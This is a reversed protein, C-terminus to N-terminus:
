RAAARPGAEDDSSSDDDADYSALDSLDSEEDDSMSSRGSLTAGSSGGGSSTSASSQESDCRVRVGAAFSSAAVAAASAAAAAASAAVAVASVTAAGCSGGSVHAAPAPEKASPALKGATAARRVASAMAALRGTAARQALLLQRLRPLEMHVHVPVCDALALAALRRRVVAVAAGLVAVSAASEVVGVVAPWPALWRVLLGQRLARSPTLAPWRACPLPRPRVCRLTTHAM